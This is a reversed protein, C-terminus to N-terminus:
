NGKYYNIQAWEGKPFKYLLIDMDYRSDKDKKIEKAGLKKLIEIHKERESIPAEEILFWNYEGDEKDYGGSKMMAVGLLEGYKETYGTGHEKVKIIKKM